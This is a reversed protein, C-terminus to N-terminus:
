ESCVSLRKSRSHSFHGGTSCASSCAFSPGSAPAPFYEERTRCLELAGAVKGRLDYTEIAWLSGRNILNSLRKGEVHFSTFSFRGKLGNPWVLGFETEARTQVFFVNEDFVGVTTYKTSSIAQAFLDAKHAKGPFAVRFYVHDGFAFLMVRLRQRTAATGSALSSSSSRRRSSTSPVQLIIAFSASDSARQAAQVFRSASCRAGLQWWVLESESEEKHDQQEGDECLRAEVPDLVRLCLEAQLRGQAELHARTVVQAPRTLLVREADATEVRWTEHDIRLFTGVAVAVVASRSSHSRVVLIPAAM